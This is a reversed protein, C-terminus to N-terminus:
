KFQQSKYICQLCIEKIYHWHKLSNVTKFYGNRIGSLVIVTQFLIVKEM